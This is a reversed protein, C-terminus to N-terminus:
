PLTINFESTYLLTYSINAMVCENLTFYDKRFFGVHDCLVGPLELCIDQFM